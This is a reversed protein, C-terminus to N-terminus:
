LYHSRDWHHSRTALSGRSTRAFLNWLKQANAIRATIVLADDHEQREAGEPPFAVRPDPTGRPGENRAGRAYAKRGSMSDGGSAPGGTIVSILREPPDAPCPPPDRGTQVRPDLRGERRLEYIQRLVERCEETDHGNQRHFRCYKSRDALERPNNMPYPTKLLGRERIQLFIETRSAGTPLPRPRLPPPDPQHLKRRPPLQGEAPKPRERKFEQRKGGTWAEVEVFQNARQLMEPVSTPPREVLSWFLRSPRLGTVFAQMSLSPHADPLERVRAAFRNVYLSLPEDEKQSLGLLFAMSPKPRACAIFHLEFDKTLQDFSAITATKLGGYWTLAPGRLTTPFARSMLADSTGFLAMQARFAATHDSPDASGDYTDLPPLRFSPPIAHELIKPVFPSGQHKAEAPGGPSGARIEKQVDDLRQNVLRLQARLSDASSSSLAELETRGPFLMAQEGPQSLPMRPSTPPERPPTPARSPAGQQYSPQPVPPRSQRSVLPVITQVMDTLLQVQHTLDYFAESSVPSPNGPGGEPPLLGPDNFIRWYRESATAPREDRPEQLPPLERTGETAYPGGITLGVRGDRHDRSM